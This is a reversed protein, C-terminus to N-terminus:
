MAESTLYPTRSAVHRLYYIGTSLLGYSIAASLLWKPVRWESVTSINSAYQKVTADLCFAAALVCAVGAVVYAARQFHTAQRESMSDLVISIFIHVRQRTLEPMALFVLCCLMYSVLSAAWTTPASFFYRAGVEYTYSCVIIVLCLVACFFGFRTIADHVGALWSLGSRANM